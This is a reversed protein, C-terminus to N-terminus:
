NCSHIVLLNEFALLDLNDKFGHLLLITIKTLLNLEIHEAAILIVPPFHCGDFVNLSHLDEVFPSLVLVLLPLVLNGKLILDELLLHVGWIVYFLLVFLFHFTTIDLVHATLELARM